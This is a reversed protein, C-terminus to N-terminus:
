LKNLYVKFFVSYKTEFFKIAENIDIKKYDTSFYGFGINYNNNGTPIIWFYSGPFKKDIFFYNTNEYLGNVNQAYFRKCLIKKQHIDKHRIISSAGSANIVRRTRFQYNDDTQVIFYEDEPIIETVKKNILTFKKKDILNFLSQDFEERNINFAKLNWKKSIMKNNLILASRNISYCSNLKSIFDEENSIYEKLLKFTRGPIADGCVKGPKQWPKFILATKYESNQLELAAGCGAPGNGIIIIDYEIM